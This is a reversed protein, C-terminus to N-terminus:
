AGLKGKGVAKMKQLTEIMDDLERTDYDRSADDYSVSLEMLTNFKEVLQTSENSLKRMYGTDKGSVFDYTNIYQVANEINRVIQNETLEYLDYLKTYQGQKEIYAKRSIVSEYSLILAKREDQFTAKNGSNKLSNILKKTYNKSDVDDDYNRDAMLLTYNSYVAYIAWFIALIAIIAITVSASFEFVYSFLLYLGCLFALLVINIINVKLLNKIDMGTEGRLVSGGM